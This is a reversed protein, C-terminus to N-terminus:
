ELRELAIHGGDMPVNDPQVIDLIGAQGIDFDLPELLSPAYDIKMMLDLVFLLIVLIFVLHVIWILFDGQVITHNITKPNALRNTLPFNYLGYEM